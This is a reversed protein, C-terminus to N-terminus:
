PPRETGAMVKIGFCVFVSVVFVEGPDWDCVDKVHMIVVIVSRPQNKRELSPMKGM